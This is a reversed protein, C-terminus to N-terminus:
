HEDVAALDGTLDLLLLGGRLLLLLLLGARLVSLLCLHQLGV